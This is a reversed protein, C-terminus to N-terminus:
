YKIFINSREKASVANRIVFPQSAKTTDLDLLLLLL